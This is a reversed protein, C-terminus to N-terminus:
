LDHCRSKSGDMNTNWNTNPGNTKKTQNMHPFAVKTSEGLLKNMREIEDGKNVNVVIFNPKHRFFEIVESNHNEYRHTWYSLDKFNTDENWGLAKAVDTAFNPYSYKFSMIGNYTLNGNLAKNLFRIRSMGYTEADDRVSLIFIADHYKHYLEEYIKPFSFPADAFAQATQIYAFLAPWNQNNYDPILKEAQGQDGVTYGLQKFYSQLSTTGTGNLGIVFIKKRNNKLLSRRIKKVKLLVRQLRFKSIPPSAGPMKKENM